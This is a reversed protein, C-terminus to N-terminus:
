DNAASDFSCNLHLCDSPGSFALKNSFTVSGSVCIYFNGKLSLVSSFSSLIYKRNNKNFRPKRMKRDQTPMVTNSDNVTKMSSTASIMGAVESETGRIPLFLIQKEKKFLLM